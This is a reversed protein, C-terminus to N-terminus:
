TRPSNNRTMPSLRDPSPYSGIITATAQPTSTANFTYNATCDKAGRLSAVLGDLQSINMDLGVTPMGGVASQSPDRLNSGDPYFYVYFVLGAPTDTTAADGRLTMYALNCGNLDGSPPPVGSPGGLSYMSLYFNRITITWAVDVDTKKENMAIGERSRLMDAM